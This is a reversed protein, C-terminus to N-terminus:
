GNVVGGYDWEEVLFLACDWEDDTMTPASHGPKYWKWDRQLHWGRQILYKTPGWDGIDGFRSIMKARLEDSAQPM